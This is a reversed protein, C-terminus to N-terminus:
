AVRPPPFPPRFRVTDPGRESVPMDWPIVPVGLYYLEAGATFLTIKVSSQKEVPVDQKGDNSRAGQVALCLPCPKEPNFTEELADQLSLAQTNKLFMGSWAVAQLIDLQSGSATIWAFVLLSLRFWKSWQKWM